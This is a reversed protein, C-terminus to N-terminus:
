HAKLAEVERKLEEIQAQQEQVANVLAAVIPREGQPLSLYEKEHPGDCSVRDYITKSEWNTNVNYCEPAVAGPMVQQVNRANFGVQEPNPDDDHISNVNKGEDNWRFRIPKIRMITALGGRYPSFIKLLPDSTATCATVLGQVTTFTATCLVGSSSVGATGNANYVSNSRVTTSAVLTTLSLQGSTSAATGNGLAITAAGTRSLGTDANWSLVQGTALAMTGTLSLSTGSAAGINGGFTVLGSTGNTANGLATAVGTGLGSIGSVPLGTANTLTGSTPTGLAGSFGVLGGTANTANGLAALVGTGAGSLGTSIPLGTLNTAVGSAPTGLAPAILTPGNNGIVVGTGSADSIVGLFQASTTAAFQSLPSGTVGCTACGITGTTTITGGTIPSTTAISTVTGSAGGTSFASWTNTATCGYFTGSTLTGIYIVHRPTCTSPLTSKPVFQSAALGGTGQAGAMGCLFLLCLIIKSKM